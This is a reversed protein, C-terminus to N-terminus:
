VKNGQHNSKKKSRKAKSSWVTIYSVGSIFTTTATMYILAPQIEKVLEFGALITLTVVVLIIQLVTNLKSVFMADFIVEGVLFRYFVAGIVITLDRLIVLGVLWAPLDGLWGLLLYSTTMLLKDGIPDLMAGLTTVWNFRRAIFGDLGDSLGALLFLGLAWGYNRHLLVWAIPIVLLIRLISIINPLYRM